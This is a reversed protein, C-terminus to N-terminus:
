IDNTIIKKVWGSGTWGLEGKESLLLCSSKSWEPQVADNKSEFSEIRIVTLLENKNVEAVVSSPNNGESWLFLKKIGQRLKPVVVDGVNIFTMKPM